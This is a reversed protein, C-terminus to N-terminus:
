EAWDVAIEMDTESKPTSPAEAHVLARSESEIMELAQLAWKGPEM